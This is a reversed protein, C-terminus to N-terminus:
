NELTAQWRERGRQLVVAPPQISIVEIGATQAGEAMPVVDGNISLIVRQGDVNAFGLLEVSQEIGRKNEHKASRKPALFLNERHPYPPQFVVEAPQEAPEAVVEVPAPQQDAQPKVAPKPESKAAYAPAQTLAAQPAVKSEGCGVLACGLVALLTIRSKPVIPM